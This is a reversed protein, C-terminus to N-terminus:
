FRGAGGDIITDTGTVFSAEDSALFLVLRAAEQASGWRKMPNSQAVQERIQRAQEASIGPTRGLLPTDIPGPSVVNVRIGRGVLEAGLTRALSAVGAKAATYVSLAPLTKSTALSSTLVISAGTGMLPLAKQITFFMGKLNVAFTVDWDQPSVAEIPGATGGGANVFLVDIHGYRRRVEGVVEDQRPLDTIDAQISLSGSGIETAAASLTEPNRGTMVVRAGEAAFARAAALGIGSNGGIILVVKDVFRPQM